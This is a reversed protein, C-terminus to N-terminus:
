AAADIGLLFFGREADSGIPPIGHPCRVQELYRQLLRQADTHLPVRRAKGHSRTKGCCHPLVRM